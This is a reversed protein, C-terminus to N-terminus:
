TEDFNIEITDGPRGYVEFRQNFGVQFQAIIPQESPISCRFVGSTSDLEIRFREWSTNLYFGRSHQLPTIKGELVIPGKSPPNQDCGLASVILVIYWLFFLFRM